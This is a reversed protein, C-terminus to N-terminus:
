LKLFSFLFFEGLYCDSHKISILKENNTQKEALFFLQKPNNDERFVTVTVLSLKYKM